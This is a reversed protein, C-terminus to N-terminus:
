RRWSCDKKWAQDTVWTQCFSCDEVTGETGHLWRLKWTVKEYIRTCSKKTLRCRYMGSKRGRESSIMLELHRRQARRRLWMQGRRETAWTLSVMMTMAKNWSKWMKWARRRSVYSRTKKPKRQVTASWVGRSFTARVKWLWVNTWKNALRRKLLLASEM